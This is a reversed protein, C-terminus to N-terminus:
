FVQGRILNRPICRERYRAVDAVLKRSFSTMLHFRFVKIVDVLMQSISYERTTRWM